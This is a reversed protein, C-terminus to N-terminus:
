KSCADGGWTNGIHKKSEKFNIQHVSTALRLTAPNIKRNNTSKNGQKLFADKLSSLIINM